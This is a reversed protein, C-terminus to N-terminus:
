QREKAPTLIVKRFDVILPQAYPSDWNHITAMSKAVEKLEEYKDMIQYLSLGEM